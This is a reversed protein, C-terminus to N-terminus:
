QPADLKRLNGKYVATAVERGLREAVVQDFRYHIGGFVRADAIDATIQHFESYNYTLTPFAPNTMVIAHGGAGYVRRLIEAGGGSLSGHNSGYSPFCPTLVYPEWTTDEETKSNGDLDAARIATEPRWFNYIYKTTFSAVAADSIAMNILALARASHIMSRGQAEAVQRAALNMVYAPSSAAYFRAVDSRDQSRETSNKSGVRKVEDFDKTYENSTLAPPPGAVFAAADAVGFPRLDLWHVSTGGAASCSPTLQWQGPDTSTPLYFEPVASVDNTRAAIIAAAAAEGVTIGATKADGDPIAALSDARLTDIAAGPVYHKLVRYAAAIVAADASAGPPAVVTGLYPEYGGQIANVAEFVALQTAAMVRAQNFPNGAPVSVAIANWQLVVDARAAAPTSFLVATVIAVAVRFRTRM